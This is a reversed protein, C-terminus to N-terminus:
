PTTTPEPPVYGDPWIVRLCGSSNRISHDEVIEGFKGGTLKQSLHFFRETSLPLSQDRMTGEWDIFQLRGAPAYDVANDAARLASFLDVNKFLHRVLISPPLHPVLDDQYEYRIVDPVLQGYGDAFAQDGPHAGEFSRVTINAGNVAGSKAFRAAALHAAAGGKSHGTVLLRARPNQDFGKKVAALLDPWLGDISRLFGQHVRGPLNEGPVLIDELNNLWDRLSKKTDSSDIPLTGRFAVVVVDPGTGVFAADIHGSGAVFGAIPSILSCGAFYPALEPVNGAVEIAYALNSACILQTDVSM